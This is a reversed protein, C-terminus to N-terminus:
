VYGLSCVRIDEAYGGVCMCVCTQLMKDPCVYGSLAYLCAGQAPGFCTDKGLQRRVNPLVM